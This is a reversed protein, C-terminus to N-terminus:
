DKASAALMKRLMMRADFKRRGTSADRMLKVSTSADGSLIAELLARDEGSRIRDAFNRDLEVLYERNWIAHQAWLNRREKHRAALNSVFNAIQGIRGKSGQGLGITNGAHQRYKILPQDVCSVKGLLTAVLILWHDHIRVAPIPTAVDVLARNCMMACGPVHSGLIYDKFRTAGRSKITSDFYSPAIVHLQDDVIELDSFVVLPVDGGFEAELETIREFLLSLKSDMWVDDQDALAVYPADTAGIASEFNRLVNRSPEHHARTIDLHQNYEDLVELTADNSGDDSFVLRINAHTQRRISDLFPRLYQEGNYTALAIDIRPTEDVVAM